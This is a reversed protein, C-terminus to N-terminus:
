FRAASPLDSIKVNNLIQLTLTELHFSRLLASHSRNWQRIMRIVPVLKFEHAVNANNWITVHQTPDTAIWRRVVSDPNGCVRSLVHCDPIIRVDGVLKLEHGDNPHNSLPIAAVACQKPRKM